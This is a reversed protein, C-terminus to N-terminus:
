FQTSFFTIQVCIKKFTEKLKLITGILAGLTFPTVKKVVISNTPKNGVFVKHPQIKAVDAAPLGSKELEAKVVEATKGLALAETQALFNSLLIKHHLSARSPNHSQAPAIFDCPILRTGQHILQYFAHQGNTGPEGWVIPGTSYDVQKGSRTIYRTV